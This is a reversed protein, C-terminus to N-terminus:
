YKIQEKLSRKILELDDIVSQLRISRFIAKEKEDFKLASKLTDTLYEMEVIDAELRDKVDLMSLKYM